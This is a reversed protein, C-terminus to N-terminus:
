DEDCDLRFYEACLPSGYDECLESVFGYDDGIDQQIDMALNPCSNADGHAIAVLLLLAIM